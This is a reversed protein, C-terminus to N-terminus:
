HESPLLLVGGEVWLTIEPLPFDTYEIEQTVVPPEDSDARCTLTASRDKVALTWVQFDRLAPTRNVQPQYSAVADILWYCDANEALYQVGDTYLLGGIPNGHYQDGGTCQSLHKLNEINM